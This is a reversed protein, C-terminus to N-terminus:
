TLPGSQLSAIPDKVRGSYMMCIVSICPLVCYIPLISLLALLMLYYYGTFCCCQLLLWLHQFSPGGCCGGLSSSPRPDIGSLPHNEGYNVKLYYGHTSSHPAGVAGAWLAPHGPISGQCPAIKRWLECEINWYWAELSIHQGPQTSAIADKVRGWYM